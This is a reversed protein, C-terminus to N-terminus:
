SGRGVVLLRWASRDIADADVVRVACACASEACCGPQGLPRLLRPLARWVNLGFDFLNGRRLSSCTQGGCESALDSTPGIVLSALTLLAHFATWWRKAVLDFSHWRIGASPLLCDCATARERRAKGRCAPTGASGNDSGCGRLGRLRAGRAPGGAPRIAALSGRLCLKLWVYM